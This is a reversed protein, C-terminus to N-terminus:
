GSGFAIKSEMIHYGAGLPDSEPNLFTLVRNRQYGRMFQWAVPVAAIGGAIVVAFKWLRVGAVFFLGGGGLLLMMATRLDPQKMVLGVPALVMFIPVVLYLPRRLEELTLGHFYRALSLVLAIKMVESPQIQFVGLDLWRQAGLGVQGVFDVAVLLVLAVL